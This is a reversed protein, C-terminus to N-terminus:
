AAAKAAAATKGATSAARAAKGAKAALAGAKLEPAAVTAATSATKGAARVPKAAARAVGGVPGGVGSNALMWLGIIVAFTGVYVWSIRQWNHVNTLWQAAKLWSSAIVSFAKGIATIPQVIPAIINAPNLDGTINDPWLNFPDINDPWLPDMFNVDQAGGAAGASSSAGPAALAARGLQVGALGSTFTAWPKWNTGGNSIAYAAKANQLPDMMQAASYQRHVSNIQWLGTDTSGDSNHNQATTSGSQNEALSVAVAWTLGKGQYGAGNRFGAAYAVQAVQAPTLNAM